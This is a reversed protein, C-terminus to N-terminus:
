KGIFRDLSIRGPGLLLIVIFAILFLLAMEGSGPGSTYKANHVIFFAIGMAIILPICALRTFLGLVIFAACFFEAFVTLALAVSGNLYGTPDKFSRSLAGYNSLKQYGHDILMILGFGLRLVLTGLNFATDSTRTSFLKKM